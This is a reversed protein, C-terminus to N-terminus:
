KLLLRISDIIRLEEEGYNTEWIYLNSISDVLKKTEATQKELDTITKLMLARVNSSPTTSKQKYSAFILLGILILNKMFQFETTFIINEISDVSDHHEPFGM